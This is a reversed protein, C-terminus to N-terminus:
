PAQSPQPQCTATQAREGGGLKGAAGAAAPWGRRHHSCPAQLGPRWVASRGRRPRPSYGQSPPVSGWFAEWVDAM